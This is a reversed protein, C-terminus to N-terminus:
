TKRSDENAPPHLVTYACPICYLKSLLGAQSVPCFLSSLPLQSPDREEGGFEKGRRHGVVPSPFNSKFVVATTQRAINPVLTFYYFRDVKFTFALTLHYPVM